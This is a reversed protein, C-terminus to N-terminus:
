FYTSGFRIITTSAPWKVPLAAAWLVAFGRVALHPTEWRLALRLWFARSYSVRRPTRPSRPALAAEVIARPGNAASHASAGALANCDRSIIGTPWGPVAVRRNAPRIWMVVHVRQAAIKSATVNM